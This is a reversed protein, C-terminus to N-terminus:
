LRTLYEPVWDCEAVMGITAALEARRAREVTWESKPFDRSFSFARRLPALSAMRGSVYRACYGAHQPEALVLRNQPGFGSAIILRRWEALGDDMWQMHAIGHFHLTGNHQRQLVWGYAGLRDRHRLRRVLSRLAAQAEAENPAAALPFTLTFFMARLPDAAGEIGAIFRQTLEWQKRLACGECTRWRGCPVIVTEGHVICSLRFPKSCRWSPASKQCNNTLPRGQRPAGKLSVLEQVSV